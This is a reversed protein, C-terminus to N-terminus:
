TARDTRPAATARVVIRANRSTLRPGAATVSTVIRGRAGPPAVVTIRVTRRAGPALTGLRARVGNERERVSGRATGTVSLARPVRADIVVAGAARNGTNRVTISQTIRGSDPVREPGATTLALRAGARPARPQAPAALSMATPATEGGPNEPTEPAEPQEPEEPTRPTDDATVTCTSEEGVAITGSCGTGYSVAYGSPATASVAYAGADLTVATGTASGPFAAPSANAGDVRLTFDAPGATGGNDNVVRKVVTLQPAIDDLTVTCTATAGAPLGTGTCGDSLTTAYGGPVDAVLAYGAGAPVTLTAADGGTFPEIAAGDVTGGLVVDAATATGGNDNTIRTAVSVQAQARRATLACDVTGGAPIRWPGSVYWSAAGSPTVRAGRCSLALTHHALDVTETGTAVVTVHRRSTVDVAPTAQGDGLEGAPRGAVRLGLARDAQGPGAFRTTVRVAARREHVVVCAVDHWPLMRVDLVPATRARGADRTFFGRVHRCSLGAFELGDPTGIKIRHRRWPASRLAPTSEWSRLRTVQGPLDPRDARSVVVTVQPDWRQGDRVVSTVSIDRAQAIGCSTLLLGAGLMAVIPGRGRRRTMPM